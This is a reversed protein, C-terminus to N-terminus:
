YSASDMCMWRITDHSVDDSGVDVSWLWVNGNLRVHLERPVDRREIAMTRARVRLKEAAKCRVATMFNAM